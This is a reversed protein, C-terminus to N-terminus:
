CRPQKRGANDAALTSDWEPVIVFRQAVLGTAVELVQSAEACGHATCTRGGVAGRLLQGGSESLRLSGNSAAAALGHTVEIVDYGCVCPPSRFFVLTYDGKALRLVSSAGSRPAAGGLTGVADGATDFDGGPEPRASPEHEPSTTSTRPATPLPRPTEERYMTSTVPLGRASLRTSLVAPREASKIHGASSTFELLPCKLPCRPTRLLFRLRRLSSDGANIQVHSSSINADTFPRRAAL